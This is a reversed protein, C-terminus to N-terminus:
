NTPPGSLARRYISQMGERTREGVAWLATADGGLARLEEGAIDAELRWTTGGDATGLILSRAFNAYHGAVWGRQADVFRVAALTLGPTRDGTDIKRVGNAGAIEDLKPASRADGIRTDQLTWSAGGDRTALITGDQGVTWGHLADVFHLARLEPRSGNVLPVDLASWTRGDDDSRALKGRQGVVWLVSGIRQVSRGSIARREDDRVISWSSGGDVTALLGSEGIAWGREADAFGISFLQLYAPKRDASWHEGGDLTTLAAGCSGLAVGSRADVFRVGVLPCRRGGAEDSVIGSTFKWSLGRDLTRGILGGAIDWKGGVIWGRDADVFTVARFDAATGLPM